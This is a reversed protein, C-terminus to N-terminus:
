GGDQASSVASVRAIEAGLVSATWQFGVRKHVDFDPLINSRRMFSVHPRNLKFSHPCDPRTSGLRRTEDKKPGRPSVKRPKSRQTPRLIFSSFSRSQNESKSENQDNWGIQHLPTLILQIRVSCDREAGNSLNGRTNPTITVALNRQMPCYFCFSNFYILTKSNLDTPRCDHFLVWFVTSGNELSPIRVM